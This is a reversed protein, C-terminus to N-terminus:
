GGCNHGCWHSLFPRLLSELKVWCHAMKGGFSHIKSKSARLLSDDFCNSNHTHGVHVFPDIEARTQDTKSISVCSLRIPLTIWQWMLPTCTSPQILPWGAPMVLEGSWMCTFAFFGMCCASWLMLHDYCNPTQAFAHGLLSLIILTIPLRSDGSRPPVRQVGKLTLELHYRPDALSYAFPPHSILLSPSHHPPCM